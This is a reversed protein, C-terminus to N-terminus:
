SAPVTITGSANITVQVGSSIALSNLEIDGGGATVTVTGEFVLAADRDYWRCKAATGTANASTDAGITNATTVGNSAAGFAPNNLAHESLVTNDSECITMQGTGSGADLLDVLANCMASRAANQLTLSM